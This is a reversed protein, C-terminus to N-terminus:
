PLGELSDQIIALISETEFDEKELGIVILILRSLFDVRNLRKPLTIALQLKRARWDPHQDHDQKKEFGVITKM